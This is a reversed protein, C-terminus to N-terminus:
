RSTQQKWWQSWNRIAFQRETDSSNPRPGFDLGRSLRVLSGRASQRVMPSQDNLLQILESGWPLSKYGILYAGVARVEPLDDKLTEKLTNVPQRYLHKLLLNQSLTQIQKDKHRMHAGLAAIVKPAARRELEMLFQELRTGKEGHTAAILEAVSMKQPSKEGYRTDAIGNRKLYSTRLICALKLDKITGMHRKAVVGAGINERAFLLLQRDTTSNLIRALKRGIIVAPCSSKMEAARNLGEILVFTAEPGLTNFEELAKQGAAGKLQGIDYLIFNNVIKEYRAREEATLTPLSPALPHPERLPNEKEQAFIPNALLLLGCLLASQSPLIRMVM